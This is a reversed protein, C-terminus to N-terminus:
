RRSSHVPLSSLSRPRVAFFQAIEMILPAVSLHLGQRLCVNRFLLHPMARNILSIKAQDFLSHNQKIAQENVGRM